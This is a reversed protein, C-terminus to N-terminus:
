WRTSVYAGVDDGCSLSLCVSLSLSISLSLSCRCAHSPHNRSPHPPNGGHWTSCARTTTPGTHSKVQGPFAAVPTLPRSPAADAPLLLADDDEGGDNDNHTAGRGGRKGHGAQYGAGGGGGGSGGYEAHEIVLHFDTPLAHQRKNVRATDRLVAIADAERGVELLWRPSEPLWYFGGLAIVVPASCIGVMYRWGLADLMLWAM